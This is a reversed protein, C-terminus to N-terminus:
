WIRTCRAESRCGTTPSVNYEPRGAFHARFIVIAIERCLFKRWAAANCNRCGRVPHSNGARRPRQRFLKRLSKSFIPATKWSSGLSLGGGQKRKITLLPFRGTGPVHAYKGVGGPQRNCFASLGGPAAAFPTGPGSSVTDNSQAIGSAADRASTVAKRTGPSTPRGRGARAASSRRTKEHYEVESRTATASAITTDTGIAM